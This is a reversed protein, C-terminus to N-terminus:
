ADDALTGAASSDDAASAAVWNAAPRAAVATTAGSAAPRVVSTSLDMRRFLILITVSIVAVTRRDAVSAPAPRHCAWVRDSSFASFAGESPSKRTVTLSTVRSSRVATVWISISVGDADLISNAGSLPFLFKVNEEPEEWGSPRYRRRNVAEASRTSGFSPAFAISNM